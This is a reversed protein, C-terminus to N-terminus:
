LDGGCSPLCTHGAPTGGDDGPYPCCAFPSGSQQSVVECDQMTVWHNGTCIQAKQGDCRTESTTCDDRCGPMGFLLVLLLLLKRM